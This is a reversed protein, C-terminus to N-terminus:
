RCHEKNRSKVPKSATRKSIASPQNGSNPREFDRSKGESKKPNFQKSYGRIESLTEQLGRSSGAVRSISSGYSGTPQKQANPQFDSSTDRIREVGTNARTGPSSKGSPKQLRKTEANREFGESFTSEELEKRTYSNKRNRSENLEYTIGKRTYFDGLKSARVSILNGNKDKYEPHRYSVTDGAIRTEVGYKRRLAAIVNQFTQNEENGVELQIVERL